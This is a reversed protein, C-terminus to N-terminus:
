IKKRKKEDDMLELVVHSLQNIIDKDLGILEKKESALFILISLPIDLAHAINKIIHINAERKNRELLSLYSISVGAKKALEKQSLDKQTRCVKIAKGINM